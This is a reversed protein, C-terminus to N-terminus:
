CVPIAQFDYNFTNDMVYKYKILNIVYFMTAHLNLDILIYM